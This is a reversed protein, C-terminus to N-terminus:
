FACHINGDGPIYRRSTWIHVSTESNVYPSLPAIDCFIAVNMVAATLVEFGIYLDRHISQEILCQPSGTNLNRKMKKGTIVDKTKSVFDLFVTCWCTYLNRYTLM